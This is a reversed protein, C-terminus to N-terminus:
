RKSQKMKRWCTQSLFDITPLYHTSSTPQFLESPLANGRHLSGVFFTYPIACSEKSSSHVQIHKDDMEYAILYHLEDQASIEISEVMGEELFHSESPLLQLAFSRHEQGKYNIIIREEKTEVSEVQWNLRSALWAQILMAQLEPSTGHHHKKKNYRIDIKEISQLHSQKEVSHFLRSLTSRWPETRIWNLDIVPIKQAYEKLQSFFTDYQSICEAEFITRQIYRNLMSFASSLEFPPEATLLFTPLDALLEPIILFPIKNIQDTSAEITVLECSITGGGNTTTMISRNQQLTNEPHFSNLSVFLIKCPFKKSIMQVLQQIRASKDIDINIVLLTFLSARMVNKEEATPDQLQISESQFPNM